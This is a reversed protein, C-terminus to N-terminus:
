GALSSNKKSASPMQLFIPRNEYNLIGYGCKDTAIMYSGYACFIFM